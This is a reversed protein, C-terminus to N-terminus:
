AAFAARIDSKLRTTTISASADNKGAGTVIKEPVFSSAARARAQQVNKESSRRAFKALKFSHVANEYNEKLLEQAKLVSHIHTKREYFAREAAKECVLLEIGVIQEHTLLGLGVVHNIASENKELYPSVLNKICFADFSARARFKQIDHDCYSKKSRYSRDNIYFRLEAYDSFTVEKRRYHLASKNHPWEELLSNGNNSQYSTTCRVDVVPKPTDIKANCSRAM